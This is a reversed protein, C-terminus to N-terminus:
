EIIEMFVTENNDDMQEMANTAAALSLFDITEAEEEEEQEDTLDFLIPPKMKGSAVDDVMANYAKKIQPDAVISKNKEEARRQLEEAAGAARQGNRSKVASDQIYSGKADILRGITNDWVRDCDAIIRHQPPATMITRIVSERIEIPTSCKYKRDDTAPMWYSLAINRALAEKVDAFPHCDVPMLEPSDGPLKGKYYNSVRDNYVGDIKIFRDYWTREPNWACPCTKTKMYALSEKEWLVSLHDHYIM